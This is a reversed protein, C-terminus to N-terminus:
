REVGRETISTALPAHPGEPYASLYRSALVRAQAEDGRHEACELSRGLAEPALAGGPREALYIGFWNEAEAWARRGDFAMRGLHYAAMASADSKPFRTRVREYLRIAAPANGALRAASGLDVLERGSAQEGIKALGQHEARAFADRAKGDRLLSRWLPPDHSPPASASSPPVWESVSSASPPTFPLSASAPPAEQLPAMPPQTCTLRVREPATVTRTGREICPGELRVRGSTMAITLEENLPNWAVDFETGLVHVEFPGGAIRWQTHRGHVVHVHLEGREVLINAGDKALDTVRARAGRGVSVKSGDSFALDTSEQDAGVWQGPEGPADAVRYSLTSQGASRFVLFLVVAVAAFAVGVFTFRLRARSRMNREAERRRVSVIRQEITLPTERSQSAHAAAARRGLAEFDRESLGM